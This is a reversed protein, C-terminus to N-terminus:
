ISVQIFTLYSTYLVYNRQTTEKSLRSIDYYYSDGVCVTKPSTVCRGEEVLSLSAHCAM